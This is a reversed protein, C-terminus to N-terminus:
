TCRKSRRGRTTLTFDAPVQITMVLSEMVLDVFHVIGGATQDTGQAPCDLGWDQDDPPRAQGAVSQIPTASAAAVLPTLVVRVM